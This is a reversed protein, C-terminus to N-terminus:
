QEEEGFLATIVVPSTLPVLTTRSLFTDRDELKFSRRPLFSGSSDEAPLLALNALLFELEAELDPPLKPLRGFVTPEVVLVYPPVAM